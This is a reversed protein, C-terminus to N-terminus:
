KKEIALVKWRNISIVNYVLHLCQPHQSEMQQCLSRPMWAITPMPKRSDYSRCSDIYIYECRLFHSSPILSHEIIFRHFFSSCIPSSSSSFLSSHRYHINTSETAPNSILSTPIYTFNLLYILYSPPTSNGYINM